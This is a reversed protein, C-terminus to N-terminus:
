PFTVTKLLHWAGAYDRLWSSTPSVVTRKTLKLRPIIYFDGSTSTEDPRVFYLLFEAWNSRPLNLPVFTRINNTVARAISKTQVIQCRKGSILVQYRSELHPREVDLGHSTAADVTAQIAAPIPKPPKPLKPKWTIPKPPAKIRWRIESKAVPENLLSWNNRYFILRENEISVVTSANISGSPIVYISRDKSQPLVYLQFEAWDTKPKRVAVYDHRPHNSDSSIRSLSHLTCRRGEILIRTQCFEARPRHTRRKILTVELGTQKAAAIARRLQWNM